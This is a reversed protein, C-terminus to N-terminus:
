LSVSLVWMLRAHRAWVTPRSSLWSTPTKVQEPNMKQSETRYVLIRCLSPRTNQACKGVHVGSLTQRTRLVGLSQLLPLAETVAGGLGVGVSTAQSWVGLAPNGAFICGGILGCQKRLM